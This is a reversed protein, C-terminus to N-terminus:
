TKHICYMVVGWVTFEMGTIIETEKFAPNEPVLFIREGRKRLRKVTFEGNVVAIVIKNDTAPLSRDVVLLDGDFIGAGTMSPGSVRVFFTSSPRKVLLGNLDLKKDQYDEAPSPFGAPVQSLFLPREIKESEGVSFIEPTSATKKKPGSKKKGMLLHLM